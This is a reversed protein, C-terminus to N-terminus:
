EVFRAPEANTNFDCFRFIVIQIKILGGKELNYCIKM